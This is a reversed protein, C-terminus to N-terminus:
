DLWYGYLKQFSQRVIKIDGPQLVGMTKLILDGPKM